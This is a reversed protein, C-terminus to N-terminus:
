PIGQASPQEALWLRITFAAGEGPRSEISLRGQHRNLIHKV